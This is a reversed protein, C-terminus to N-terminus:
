EVGAAARYKADLEAEWADDMEAIAEAQLRQREELPLGLVDASVVPQEICHCHISESAPLAPDRPYMCPYTGGDRGPLMFPADKPVVTGSFAAHNERPQNRYSGTHLWRKMEVAPSQMISEHQAVSHARLVETLAARRAKYYEDRIGSDQLMRTFDAIGAGDELGKTLITEIETHSNLKMLGGLEESWSEIWATTRKSFRSCVLEHDTQALYAPVLENLATTFQAKFIQLLDAALTDDLKVGPWVEAAFQELDIAQGARTLVLSTEALLANAVDDEVSAIRSVTAQPEAFGESELADALDDDAKALYADIAKLLKGCNCPM